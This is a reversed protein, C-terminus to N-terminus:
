AGISSHLANAISQGYRKADADHVAEVMVRAIPPTPTDFSSRATTESHPNLRLPLM